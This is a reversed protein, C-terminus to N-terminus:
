AAWLLKPAKIVLDHESAKWKAVVVVIVNAGQRSFRKM